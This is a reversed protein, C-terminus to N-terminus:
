ETEKAAKKAKATKEPAAAKEGSGARALTAAKATKTTPAAKASKAAKKEKGGKELNAAKGPKTAAKKSTPQAAAEEKERVIVTIQSFPKMISSARGRGRAHFRKM